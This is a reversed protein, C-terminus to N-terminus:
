DRDITAPMSGSLVTWGEAPLASLAALVRSQEQQDLPMATEYFETLGAGDAITVCSRTEGAVEVAAVAIGEAAALSAVLSGIQGGLPAVVTVTAGLLRAARALNFGKGGAARLVTSPRHISGVEVREVLYSVDLAPSLLLVTIM